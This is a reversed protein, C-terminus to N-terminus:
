SEEANVPRRRANPVSIRKAETHWRRVNCM